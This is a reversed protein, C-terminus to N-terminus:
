PNGLLMRRAHRHKNVHGHRSDSRLECGCVTARGDHPWRALLLPHFYLLFVPPSCVIHGFSARTGARSTSHYFVRHHLRTCSFLIVSHISSRNSAAFYTLIIKLALSREKDCRPIRRMCTFRSDSGDLFELANVAATFM